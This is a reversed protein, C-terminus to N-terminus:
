MSKETSPLPGVGYALKTETSEVKKASATKALFLWVPLIYIEPEARNLDWQIMTSSKRVNAGQFEEAM